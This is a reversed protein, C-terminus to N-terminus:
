LAAASLGSRLACPSSFRADSAPRAFKEYTASSPTEWRGPYPIRIYGDQKRLASGSCRTRGTSIRWACAVSKAARLGYAIFLLLIARDRKNAPRDGETTALLRLVDERKLGRPVAEDWIFRPPLIGAALGPRCWRRAEAFHFFARLRQAYDHITRRNCTGRAKEAAIADDIDTIKVSTLPVDSKALWNFFRDAAVRYGHVTAESLGRTSRLWEEYADVEASHPHRMMVPENFWGLFSLWRVGCNVFRRKAKPSASRVCRRGKPQSWIAAAAEIQSIGAPVGATLDLLRVVSLLDNACKLLTSRSAGNKKLHQLYRLRQEAFPATRQKKLTRPLTFLEELM